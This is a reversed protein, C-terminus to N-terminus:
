LQMRGGASPSIEGLENDLRGGGLMSEFQDMYHDQRDDMRTFSQQPLKNLTTSLRQKSNLLENLPTQRSNINRPVM